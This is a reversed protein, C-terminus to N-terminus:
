LVAGMFPKGQRRIPLFALRMGCLSSTIFGSRRGALAAMCWIVEIAQHVSRIIAGGSPCRRRDLEDSLCIVKGAVKRLNEALYEDPVRTTMEAHYGHAIIVIDPQLHQLDISAFNVFPVSGQLARAPYKWAGAEGQGGDTRYSLPMVLVTYAEKEALAEDWLHAMRQWDEMTCPCFLVVKKKQFSRSPLPFGSYREAYSQECVDRSVSADLFAMASDSRLSWAVADEFRARFATQTEPHHSLCCVFGEPQLAHFVETMLHAHFPSAEDELLLIGRFFGDPLHLESAEQPLALVASGAPLEATGVCYLRSDLSFLPMVGAMAQVLQESAPGALLYNGVQEMALERVLRLFVLSEALGNVGDGLMRLFRIVQDAMESARRHEDTRRSAGLWGAVEGAKQPSFLEKRSGDDDLFFFVGDQYSAGAM